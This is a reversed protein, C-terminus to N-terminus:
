NMKNKRFKEQKNKWEFKLSLKEFVFVGHPFIQSKQDINIFQDINEDQLVNTKEMQLPLRKLINKYDYGIYIHFNQM